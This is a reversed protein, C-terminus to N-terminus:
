LSINYQPRSLESRCNHQWRRRSSRKDSQKTCKKGSSSRRSWSSGWLQQSSLILLIKSSGVDDKAACIRAETDTSNTTMEMTISHALVKGSQFVASVRSWCLYTVSQGGQPLETLNNEVQDSDKLCFRNSKNQNLPKVITRFFDLLKKQLVWYVCCCAVCYSFSASDKM